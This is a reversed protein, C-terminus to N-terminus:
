RQLILVVVTAIVGVGLLLAFWIMARSGRNKHGV